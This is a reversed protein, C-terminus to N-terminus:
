LANFQIGITGNFGRANYGLNDFYKRNGLNQLNAFVAWSKSFTYRTQFDVTCYDSLPVPAAGYIPELRESLYRLRAGLYLAPSM